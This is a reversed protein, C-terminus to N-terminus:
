LFMIVDVSKRVFFMFVDVSERVFAYVLGRERCEKESLNVPRLLM